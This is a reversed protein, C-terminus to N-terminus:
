LKKLKRYEKILMKMQLIGNIKEPVKLAARLEDATLAVVDLKEDFKGVVQCYFCVTYAGPTPMKGAYNTAADHVQNCSRCRSSVKTKTTKIIIKKM